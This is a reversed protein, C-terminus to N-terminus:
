LLIKHARAYDEPLGIDIFIASSKYGYIRKRSKLLEVLIDNELSKNCYGQALLEELAETKFLYTGGNVLYKPEVNNEGMSLVKGLDDVTVSMYRTNESAEFLSICVDANSELFFNLMQGIDVDFFTDGNLVLVYESLDNTANKLSQFGLILGGGTGQPTAEIAYTIPAGCHRNKFYNVINEHMYGVSISLRNVGRGIWHEILIQLFPRDKILAMPKPRDFVISRLRTGLGGALIIAMM